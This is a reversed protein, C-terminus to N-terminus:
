GTASLSHTIPILGGLVQLPKPLTSVPFLTGTMFWIRIGALCLPVKQVALQVAAALIGIAVAIVLSLGLDCHLWCYHSQASTFRGAAARGGCLVSAAGHKRCFGVNREPFDTGAGSDFNDDPDGTNGNAASGACYPSFRQDGDGPMHSFGTGVILFPFYGVGDPRFGAGVARSLYYFAALEALAGAATIVFGTRYRIATLLRATIALM